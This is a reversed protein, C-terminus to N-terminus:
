CVTGNVRRLTGSQLMSGAFVGYRGRDAASVNKPSSATLARSFGGRLSSRQRLEGEKESFARLSFALSRQKNSFTSPERDFNHGGYILYQPEAHRHASKDIRAFANFALFVLIAGSLIAVGLNGFFFAARRMFQMRMAREMAFMVKHHPMVSYSCSLGAM